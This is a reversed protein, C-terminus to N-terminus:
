QKGETEWQAVAWKSLEATNAAPAISESVLAAFNAEERLAKFDGAELYAQMREASEALRNIQTKLHMLKEMPNPQNPRRNRRGHTM